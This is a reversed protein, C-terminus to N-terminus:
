FLFMAGGLVQFRYSTYQNWYAYKSATINKLELFVSFKETYRYEIKENLDVFANLTTTNGINPNQAYRPGVFYLQTTSIIKKRINYIFAGNATIAPIGWPKKQRLMDFHRYQATFTLQAKENLKFNFSTAFNILEVDDYVPLFWNFFPSDVANIFFIHNKISAYSGMLSYSIEDSLIGSLTSSIQSNCSTAKGFLGPKIYPNEHILNVFSNSNVFGDYSLNIKMIKPLIVFDFSAYPFVYLTTGGLHKDSTVNLGGQLKWEGKAKSVYPRLTFLNTYSSDNNGAAGYFRNSITLGGYFLSMMKGINTTLFVQNEIQNSYFTHYNYQLDTKYQIKNSDTNLSNISFSATGTQMRQKFSDAVYSLASSPTIGYYWYTESRYKLDATLASKKTLYKGRISALTNKYPADIKSRSDQLHVSGNASRHSFFLGWSSRESRGSNFSAELLPAWPNGIGAKIYNNLLAPVTEQALKAMSINRPSYPAELKVSNIRYTYQISSVTTDAITPMLNIKTFDQVVPQYPKVVTIDKKIEQSFGTTTIIGANVLLIVIKKITEKM